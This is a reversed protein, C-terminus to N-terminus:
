GGVNGPLKSRETTTTSAHGCSPRMLPCVRSPPWAPWSPAPGALVGMAPSKSAMVQDHDGVLLNDSDAAHEDIVLFNKPLSALSGSLVPPTGTDGMATTPVAKTSLSDIQDGGTTGIRINMSTVPTVRIGPVAELRALTQAVFSILLPLINFPITFWSPAVNHDLMWSRLPVTGLPALVCGVTAAALGILLAEGLAM